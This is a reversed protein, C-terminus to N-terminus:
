HMPEIRRLLDTQKPGMLTKRRVFKWDFVQQRFKLIVRRNVVLLSVLQFFSIAMEASRAFKFDMSRSFYLISAIM